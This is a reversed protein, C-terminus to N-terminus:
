GFSIGPGLFAFLENVFYSLDNIASQIATLATNLFNMIANIIGQGIDLFTTLLSIAAPAFDFTTSTLSQDLALDNAQFNLIQPDLNVSELDGSLIDLAEGALNVAAAVGDIAGSIPDMSAFILPAQQDAAAQQADTGAFESAFTQTFDDTSQNFVSPQEALDTLDPLPRM